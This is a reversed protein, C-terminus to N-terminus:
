TVRIKETLSMVAEKREPISLLAKASPKPTMKFLSIVVCVFFSMVATHLGSFPGRNVTQSCSCSPLTVRNLSLQSRPRLTAAGPLAVTLVLAHHSGGPSSCICALSCGFECVCFRLDHPCVAKRRKELKQSAKKRM